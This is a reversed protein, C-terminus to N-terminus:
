VEALQQFGNRKAWSTIAAVLKKFGENDTKLIQNRFEVPLEDFPICSHV